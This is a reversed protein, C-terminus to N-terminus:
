HISNNNFNFYYTTIVICYCFAEAHVFECNVHFSGIIGLCTSRGMNSITVNRRSGGGWPISVQISWIRCFTTVHTTDYVRLIYLSYVCLSEGILMYLTLWVRTTDSAKRWKQSIINEKCTLYQAITILQTNIQPSIFNCNLSTLGDSDM